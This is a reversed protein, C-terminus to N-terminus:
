KKANPWPAVRPDGNWAAAVRHEAGAPDGDGTGAEGTWPRRGLGEQYANYVDVYQTAMRMLEEDSKNLWSVGGGGPSFFTALIYVVFFGGGFVLCLTPWIDLSDTLVSTGLFFLAITLFAIVFGARTAKGQARSYEDEMAGRLITWVEENTRPANLRIYHTVRRSRRGRFTRCVFLLFGGAEGSRSCAFLFGDALLAAAIIAIGLTMRM